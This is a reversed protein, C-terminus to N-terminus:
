HYFTYDNNKLSLDVATRIYTVRVSAGQLGDPGRWVGPFGISLRFYLGLAKWGRAPRRRVGM